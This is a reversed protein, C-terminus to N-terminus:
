VVRSIIRFFKMVLLFGIKPIIIKTGLRQLKSLSFLPRRKSIGNTSDLNSHLKVIDANM